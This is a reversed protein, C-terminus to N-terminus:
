LFILFSKVHNLRSMAQKFDFGLFIKQMVHYEDLYFGHVARMHQHHCVSCKEHREVEIPGLAWMVHLQQYDKKEKYLRELKEKMKKDITEQSTKFEVIHDKIENPLMDWYSEMVHSLEMKKKVNMRSM